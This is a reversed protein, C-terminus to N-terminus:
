LFYKENDSNGAHEAQKGGIDGEVGSNWETKQWKIRITFKLIYM